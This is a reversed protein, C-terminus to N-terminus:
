KKTFKLKVIQSGVQPQNLQSIHKFKKTELQKILPEITRDEGTQEIQYVSIEDDADEEKISESSRKQHQMKKFKNTQSQFQTLQSKEQMNMHLLPYSLEKETYGNALIIKRFLQKFKEYDQPYDNANSTRVLHLFHIFELPVQKFAIEPIISLKLNELKKLKLTRNEAKIKFIDSNSAYILLIYALSELDDKPTPIQNLHQNVSSYKNLFLKNSNLKYGENVMFAGHLKKFKCAYKFDGLLIQNGNTSLLLKKPRLNRHVIQHKHVIELCTLQSYVHTPVTQIAILCIIPLPINRSLYNYILKISPGHREMIQYHYNFGKIVQEGHTMLIPVCNFEKLRILFQLEPIAENQQTQRSYQLSIQRKM